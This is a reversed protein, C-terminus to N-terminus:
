QLWNFVVHTPLYQCLVPHSVSPHVKGYLQSSLWLSADKWSFFYILFEIKTKRTEWLPTRGMIERHQAALWSENWNSFHRWLLQWSKLGDRRARAREWPSHQPMPSSFLQASPPKSTKHCRLEAVSPKSWPQSQLLLIELHLPFSFGTGSIAATSWCEGREGLGGPLCWRGTIASFPGNLLEEHTGSPSHSSSSGHDPHWPAHLRPLPHIHVLFTGWLGWYRRIEWWDKGKEQEPSDPNERQVTQTVM